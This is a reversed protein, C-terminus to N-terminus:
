TSDRSSRAADYRTWAAATSGRSAAEAAVLRLWNAYLRTAPAKWRNELSGAVAVFPFEAKPDVVAGAKLRQEFELLLRRASPSFYGEPPAPYGTHEGSVFRFVDRQYEKLLTRDEYEPHGQFLLMLHPDRRSFADVGNRESHSLLTYGASSLAGAPLDNWRSHPTSLPALIGATLPNGPLVDFEFVGFRKRPLRQREIGDLELVAAHAALCSWASAVTRRRAFGILEAMQGWYPEDRLAAARPENGTVILADPPSAFLAELDWYRGEMRQSAELARPVQPISFYRIVLHIGASAAALLSSFQAETGELASDPMNNVVGVSIAPVGADPDAKADSSNGVLLPEGARYQIRITM